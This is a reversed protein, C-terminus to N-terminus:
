RAPGPGKPEAFYELVPLGDEEDHLWVGKESISVVPLYQDCYIAAAVSAGLNDLVYTQSKRPGTKVVLVAHLRGTKRVIVGTIRMNEAPFGLRRLMAYKAVAFDECDGGTSLFSNPDDWEDGEDSVYPVRNVLANVTTLRNIASETTTKALHDSWENPPAIGSSAVRRLFAIGGSTDEASLLLREGAGFPWKAMDASLRDSPGYKCSKLHPDPLPAVIQESRSFAATSLVLGLCVFLRFIPYRTHKKPM